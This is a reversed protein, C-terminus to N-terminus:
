VGNGTATDQKLIYKKTNIQVSMHAFGVYEEGSPVSSM